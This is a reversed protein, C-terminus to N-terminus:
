TIIKRLEKSTEGIYEKNYKNCEIEYIVGNRDMTVRKDKVNCVKSRLTHAPRLVSCGVRVNQHM